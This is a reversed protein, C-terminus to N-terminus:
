DTGPEPVPQSRAATAPLLSRVVVYLIPIIVLNLFTSVLMGGFVTTGVSHRGASGAGSAFVLPLVGLILAFSTMLIPRFRLRAAKVASDLVTHGQDRLDRAFEVILIANKSALAIILV